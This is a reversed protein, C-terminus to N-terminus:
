RAPCWIAADDDGFPDAKGELCRIAVWACIVADLADEYRKMTAFSAFAHPIAFGVAMENRLRSLIRNWEEVLRGRRAPASTGPWYKGSKSIKYPVRKDAGMLALLATHPYVELICPLTLPLTTALLFRAAGFGDRMMTSIRGPRSPSPSHTSCHRAGYTRSIMRDCERRGLIPSCALPLDVAVIEITAGPALKRAAALIRAADPVGGEIARREWDVTRGEACGLFDSYSPALTTCSWGRSGEVCLAVGSPQHHTWAADIGIVARM